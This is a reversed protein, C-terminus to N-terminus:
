GRDWEERLRLFDPLDDRDKWIGRAHQLAQRRTELNFKAEFEEVAERVVEEAPIGTVDVLRQITQHTQESLSITMPCGGRLAKDIM